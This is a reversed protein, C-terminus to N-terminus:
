RPWGRRIRTWKKLKSERSRASKFIRSHFVYSPLLEGGLGLHGPEVLGQFRLHVVDLPGSVREAEHQISKVKQMTAIAMKDDRGNLRDMLRSTHHIRVSLGTVYDEQDYLADHIKDICPQIKEQKPPKGSPKPLAITSFGKTAIDRTRQHLVFEHGFQISQSTDSFM